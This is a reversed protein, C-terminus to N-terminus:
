KSILMQLPHIIHFLHITTISPQFLLHKPANVMNMPLQINHQLDLDVKHYKVDGFIGSLELLLNCLTGRTPFIQKDRVDLTIQHRVASKFSHGCEMRVSYPTNLGAPTLERWTGEYELKHDLHLKIDTSTLYTLLVGTRTSLYKGAVNPSKTLFCTGKLSCFGLWPKM